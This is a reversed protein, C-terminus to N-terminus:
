GDWIIEKVCNMVKTLYNEDWGQVLTPTQLIRKPIRLQDISFGEREKFLYKARHIEQGIAALNEPKLSFGSLNLAEAVVEPKYIERAFFCVVLSSLIQRWHEEALLAEAVERPNLLNKSLVKQDLSYGANDLHSHRAGILVGLHSAPGTHYGPMENGGFALAFERGGYISAAREVGQAMARYFHNSQEVILNVTKLYEPYDGWGLTIGLTEKTSINGREQAETAWSLVVGASMADLGLAEIRDMLQMLGKADSGGLMSGLAYMPEYDYSIM